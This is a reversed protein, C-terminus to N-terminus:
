ELNTVVEPLYAQKFRIALSDCLLNTINSQNEAKQNNKPLVFVLLQPM